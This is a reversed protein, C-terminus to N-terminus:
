RNETDKPPVPLCGCYQSLWTAVMALIGSIVTAMILDQPWHMGLALRSGMVGIAWIMLLTVTVYHRRTWLLGVGMLAWTAAFLTHGSPFAFGHEGQWYHRLWLPPQEVNRPEKALGTHTNGLSFYFYHSDVQHKKELWVVFPRPEQVWNKIVSKVGQGLLITMAMIAILALAPAWRFRLCWSFWLSLGVCTLVGWPSSVTETIWFLVLLWWGSVDPRWQWGTVWIILPMLLLVIVGLVTRRALEYM